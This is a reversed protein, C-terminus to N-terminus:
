DVNDYIKELSRISKKELFERCFQNKTQFELIGKILMERYEKNSMIEAKRGEYGGPRTKYTRDIQTIGM